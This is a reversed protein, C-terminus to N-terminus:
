LNFVRQVASVLGAITHPDAMAVVNLGYEEATQRTVPGIVTAPIKQIQDYDPTNKFLNVFNKVTASSAFTLLDPITELFIEHIFEHAYKPSVTRYVTVTNVKAGVGRLVDLIQERGEEARPFLIAKGALSEKGMAQAMADSTYDKPVLDVKLGRLNLASETMSGVAALRCAALSRLDFGLTNLRDFFATVGNTSSFLIWEYQNLESCAQDVASWDQPATFEITPCELVHAGLTELPKTLESAQERSRTIIIKKGFLPRQEFWRLKDRLGVVKGVVIIAPPKMEAAEAKESLDALSGVLTRQTPYTGWSIIAAPCQPDKQCKLLQGVNERLNKMGMLIILTDMRGLAEWDLDGPEHHGTVVALTSGWDRHTLPIGAYAPVALASTVGPIIEFSIGQDSLFEAEEGGRGFLFPDGGKLRVVVSFKQAAQVLKDQIQRQAVQDGYGVKGVYHHEAQPAMALLKPHVLHDYFVVDAVKLRDQAKVTILEPDGPGAGVLYVTGLKVSM